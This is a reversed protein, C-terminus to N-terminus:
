NKYVVDSTTYHPIGIYAPPRHRQLEKILALVLPMKGQDEFTPLRDDPVIEPIAQYVRDRVGKYKVLYKFAIRLFGSTTDLGAEILRGSIYAAQLDDIGKSSYESEASKTGHLRRTHSLIALEELVHYIEQVGEQEQSTRQNILSRIFGCYKCIFGGAQRVVSNSSSLYCLASCSLFKRQDENDTLLDYLFQKTEFQQVSKFNAATVALLRHVITRITRWTPTYSMLLIRMGGSVLNAVVPQPHTGSTAATQKDM